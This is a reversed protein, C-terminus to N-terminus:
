RVFADFYGPVITKWVFAGTRDIYGLTDHAAAFALGHEFRGAETFHAPIVKEGRRDVYGLQLGSGGEAKMRGIAFSALGESFTQLEMCDIPTWTGSTDLLGWVEGLQAVSLGSDPVSLSRYQMPHLLRGSRDICGLKRKPFEQSNSVIAYETGLFNQADAYTPPIVFDGQRNIFGRWDGQRVLAMGRDFPAAMDFRPPIVFAGTTDIYGDKGDLTVGALGESFHRAGEFLPPIALNGQPDIYGLKEGIQAVARRDSYFGEAGGAISEYRAGFLEKGEQDLIGVKGGLRFVAIGQRFGSLAEYRAPVVLHGEGDAAGWQGEVLVPIRGENWGGVSEWRPSVRLTGARDLLGWRGELRVAIRDASFGGHGLNAGVVSVSPLQWLESDTNRFGGFEEYKAPVVVTGRPDMLGWRSHEYFPFLAAPLSDLAGLSQTTPEQAASM